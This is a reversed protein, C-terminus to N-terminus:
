PNDRHIDLAIRGSLRRDGGRGPAARHFARQRRSRLVGTPDQNQGEGVKRDNFYLELTGHATGRPEEREKTFAVSLTARGVPVMDESVVHQELSGVFNYVYHLRNEKVYLAHGGFRSGLALLVGEAGGKPVDIDAAIAYSRNRINM